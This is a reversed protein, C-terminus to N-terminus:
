MVTVDHIKRLSLCSIGPSRGTDEDIVFIKSKHWFDVAAIAVM